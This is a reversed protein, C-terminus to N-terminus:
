WKGKKKVLTKIIGLKLLITKYVIRNDDDHEKDFQIGKPRDM